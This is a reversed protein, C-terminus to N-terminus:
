YQNRCQISIVFLSSFTLRPGGVKPSATQIDPTSVLVDCGQMNLYFFTFEVSNVQKTDAFEVVRRWTM